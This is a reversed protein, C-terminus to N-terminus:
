DPQYIKLWKGFRMMAEELKIEDRLYCMRLHGEGGPGFAAGPAFGVNAEDIIRHCTKASDKMGDISLFMYFAGDPIQFRVQPFQRLTAVVLDRNRRAKAVQETVFDDGV